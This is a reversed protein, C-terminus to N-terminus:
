ITISNTGATTQFRRINTIPFTIVATPTVIKVLCKLCPAWRNSGTLDQQDTEEVRQHLLRDATLFTDPM